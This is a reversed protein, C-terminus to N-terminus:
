KSEIAGDVAASLICVRFANRHGMCHSQETASVYLSEKVQHAKTGTCLQYREREEEVFDGAEVAKEGDQGAKM